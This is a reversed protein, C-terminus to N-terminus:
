IDAEEIPARLFVQNTVPHKLELAEGHLSRNLFPSNVDITGTALQPSSDGELQEM